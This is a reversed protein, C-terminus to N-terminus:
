NGISQISAWILTDYLGTKRRIMELQATQLATAPDAGATIEQHLRTFLPAARDDAIPWLTSIVSPAGAALFARALSITGETKQINGDATGCAALVVVSARLKLAAIEHADLTDRGDRDSSLLLSPACGPGGSSAHGAYHIVDATRANAAFAAPTVAAGTLIKRSKYFRAINATETRSAELRPSDIRLPDALALLSHIGRHRTAVALYVTASPAIVVIHDEIVYRMSFPSVLAAFPIRELTDVPVIVLRDGPALKETVPQLLRNYLLEGDRRAEQLDDRQLASRFDDIERDIQTRVIRQTTAHVGSQTATFTVLRDAILCYEIITTGLPIAAHSVPRATMGWTEILTRARSREATAFAETIRGSDLALDIAGDFLENATDFFGLRESLPIARRETELQRIGLEFDARANASDSARLHARARSLYLDPLFSLRGRKAHFDMATTLLRVAETPKEDTILLAETWAEDAGSRDRLAPDTITRLMKRAEDLDAHAAAPLRLMKRVYGRRLLADVFLQPPGTTKATDIEIRLFAAATRWDHQAIATRAAGSLATALRPSRTDGLERLVYIRERWSTDFAGVTEHADALLGQVSAANLREGQQQFARASENWATIAKGFEGRAGDCLGRAWGLQARLASYRAPAQATIEELNHRAQDIRNQDYLASAAYYRSALHMSSGGSRFNSSAARLLSEAATVHQNAYEVRGRRYLSHARALLARQKANSRDITEVAEALLADGAHQRIARGLARAVKLHQAQEATNGLLVADGWRGLIETEGWTRSEQPFEVVLRRATADDIERYAETLTDQFVTARRSLRAVHARAEGSWDSTRDLELYAQWAERAADRLGLREIVLARNFHAEVCGRDLALAADVAVLAAKLNVVHDRRTSLVLHAAALDSFEAATHAPMLNKLADVPRGALLQAIGAAHGRPSEEIIKAAVSRLRLDQLRERPLFPTWPFGASL